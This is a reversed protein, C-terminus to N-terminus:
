VHPVMCEKYLSVEVGSRLKLQLHLDSAETEPLFFEAIYGYACSEYYAQYINMQRLPLLKRYFDIDIEDHSIFAILRTDTEDPHRCGNQLCTFGGINVVRVKQDAFHESNRGKMFSFSINDNQVKHQSVYRFRTKAESEQQLVVATNNTSVQRSYYDWKVVFEDFGLDTIFGVFYIVSDKKM